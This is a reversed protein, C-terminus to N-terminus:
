IPKFKGFRVFGVTNSSAPHCSSVPIVPPSLFHYLWETFCKASEWVNSRAPTHCRDLIFRFCIWVFMDILCTDQCNYNHTPLKRGISEKLQELLLCFATFFGEQNLFDLPGTDLFPSKLSSNPGTFPPRYRRPFSESHPVFFLWRSQVLLFVFKPSSSTSLSLWQVPSDPCSYSWPFHDRNSKFAGLLLQHPWVAGPCQSFLSGLWICALKQEYSELHKWNVVREQFREM